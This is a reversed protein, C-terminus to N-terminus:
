EYNQKILQKDPNDRLFRNYHDGCLDLYKYNYSWGNGSADMEKDVLYRYSKGKLDCSDCWIITERM